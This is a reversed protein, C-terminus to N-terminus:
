LRKANADTLGLVTAWGSRALCREWWSALVAAEQLLALGEPMSALYGIVPALHCDALSLAEGLLWPASALSEIAALALRSQAKAQALAAPEATGEHLAVYLGWVMPRYAFSDVIGQIQRLRAREAAGAPQLSPGPFAEDLYAAIAQTEYLTLSGHRLVPIKGFPNLRLFEAPPGGPLFPDLEERDLAISKELATLLAIRVYVSRAMGILLPRTM